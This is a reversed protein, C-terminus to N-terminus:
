LPPPEAVPAFAFLLRILAGRDDSPAAIEMWTQGSEHQLLRQSISLEMVRQLLCGGRPAINVFSILQHHAATSSVSAATASADEVRCRALYVDLFNKQKKKREKHSISRILSHQQPTVHNLFYQFM